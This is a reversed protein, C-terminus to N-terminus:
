NFIKFIKNSWRKSFIGKTLKRSFRHKAKTVELVFPALDEKVTNFFYIM